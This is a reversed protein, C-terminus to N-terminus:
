PMLHNSSLGLASYKLYATVFPVYSLEGVSKNAVIRRSQWRGAVNRILGVDPWIYSNAVFYVLTAVFALCEIPEM